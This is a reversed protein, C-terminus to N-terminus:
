PASTRRCRYGAADLAAGITETPDPAGEPCTVTARRRDYDVEVETVGPVTLMTLSVLIPCDRCRMGVM